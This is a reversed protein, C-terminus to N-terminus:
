FAKITQPLLMLINEKEETPKDGQKYGQLWMAVPCDHQHDIFNSKVFLKSSFNISNLKNMVVLMAVMIDNAFWRYKARHVQM